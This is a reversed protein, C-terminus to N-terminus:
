KYKFNTNNEIKKFIANWGQMSENWEVEFIIEFDVLSVLAHEEGELATLIDGSNNFSIGRETVWEVKANPTIFWITEGSKLHIHTAFKGFPALYYRVRVKGKPANIKHWYDNETAPFKQKNLPIKITDVIPIERFGALVNLRHRAMAKETSDM